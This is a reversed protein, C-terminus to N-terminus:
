YTYLDNQKHDLMCATKTTAGQLQDRHQLIRKDWVATEVVESQRIATVLLWAPDSDLSWWCKEWKACCETM